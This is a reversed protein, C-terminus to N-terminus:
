ELTGPSAAPLVYALLAATGGSAAGPGLIGGFLVLFAVPVTVVSALVIEGNVATGIVVLVAGVAMLALHSGLQNRRSGGFSAFVLTAFGGFAAFTALQPDGLLVIGVAFLGPVVIAARVARLVAPASWVPLWSRWGSVVM